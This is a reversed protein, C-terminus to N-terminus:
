ATMADRGLQPQSTVEPRRHSAIDTEAQQLMREFVPSPPCSVSRVALSYEFTPYPEPAGIRPSRLDKTGLSVCIRRDAELRPAERLSYRLFWTGHNLFLHHKDGGRYRLALEPKPQIM